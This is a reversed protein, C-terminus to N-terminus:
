FKKEIKFNEDNLSNVDNKLKEVYKENQDDKAPPATESYKLEDIQHQLEKIKEDKAKIYEKMKKEKDSKEVTSSTDSSSKKMDQIKQLLEKIKDEFDM